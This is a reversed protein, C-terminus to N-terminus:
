VQRAAAAAEDRRARAKTLSQGHNQLAELATEVPLENIGHEHAIRARTAGARPAESDADGQGLAKRWVQDWEERSCGLAANMHRIRHGGYAWLSLAALERQRTHETIEEDAQDVIQAARHAREAPSLPALEAALEAAAEQQAAELEAQQNEDIRRKAATGVTDDAAMGSRAAIEENTLQYPPQKLALIAADRVQRAETQRAIAQETFIGFKAVEDLATEVPLETIGAARAAAVRDPGASPTPPPVKGAIKWGFAGAQIRTWQMRTCGMSQELGRTRHGEYAWLSLAARERQPKYTAIDQEAQTLVEVARRAREIPHAIKGLDAAVAERAKRRIEPFDPREPYIFASKPM